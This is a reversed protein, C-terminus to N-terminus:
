VLGARRLHGMAKARLGPAVSMADLFRGPDASVRPDMAALRSWATRARADDGVMAYGIATILYFRPRRGIMPPTMRALSDRALPQDGRDVAVLVLPQYFRGDPGDDLSIARRVTTEARPDGCSVFIMASDALLAPDYPNLDSARAAIRVASPCTGAAMAVRAQTSNAWADLPDITTALEAHRQANLLADAQAGGALRTLSTLLLDAKAAHLGADEPDAVLGQEVCRDITPRDQQLRERRYRHFLLLCDYGNVAVAKVEALENKAVVGDVRGITAIAPALADAIRQDGGPAPLVMNASWVLRDPGLKWLRIQVQRARIGGGYEAALRYKAAIPRPDVSGARRAARVDFVPSRRLGDLMAARVLSEVNPDAGPPVTSVLELMPKGEIAVAHRQPLLMALMIAGLVMAGVLLGTQLLLMPRAIAADAPAQEGVENEVPLPGDAVMHVKYRGSPIDIRARGEAPSRTYHDALMRRLRGVQVRPYSDARADYDPARGLGDVAVAYAKLQDGRGAVTEDVLFSLLRKMIPARSFEASALIRSLEERMAMVPDSAISDQDSSPTIPPRDNGIVGVAVEDAMTM